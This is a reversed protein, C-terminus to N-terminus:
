AGDATQSPEVSETSTENDDTRRDETPDARFTETDVRLQGAALRGESVAQRLTERPTKGIVWWAGGVDQYVPYWVPGVDAEESVGPTEDEEFHRDEVVGSRVDMYAVTQEGEDFEFEPSLKELELVWAELPVFRYLDLQVPNRDDRFEVNVFFKDWKRKDLGSVQEPTADLRPGRLRHTQPEYTYTTAKTKVVKYLIVLFFAGGVAAILFQAAIDWYALPKPASEGVYMQELEALTRTPDPIVTTIYDVESPAPAASLSEAGLSPLDSIRSLSTLWALRSQEIADLGERRRLEAITEAPDMVSARSATLRGEADLVNLYDLMMFRAHTKGRDPYLVIGDYLGWVLLVFGFFGLAGLKFLWKGNMRTKLTDGGM